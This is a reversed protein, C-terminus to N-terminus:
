TVGPIGSPWDEDVERGAIIRGLYERPNQKRAATELAKRADTISGNKAKKLKVMLGGAEKGFLEKGRRFLEADPDPDGFLGNAAAPPAATAADKKKEAESDTDSEPPTVHGNGSVNRTGNRSVNGQRKRFQKVRDTSVDSKFQRGDWNHPRLVGDTEDLLGASKIEAVVTQTKALTLRLKIAIIKVDPLTGGNASTVCMLNFWARHARDSLMILKPDDVAEEYARWWRSTM